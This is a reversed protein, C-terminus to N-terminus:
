LQLHQTLQLFLFLLLLVLGLLLFVPCTRAFPCHRDPSSRSSRHVPCTRAFLFNPCHNKFRRLTHPGCCLFHCSLCMGLLYIFTVAVPCEWKGENVNISSVYRDCGLSCKGGDMGGGGGESGWCSDESKFQLVSHDWTLAGYCMPACCVELLWTDNCRRLSTSLRAQCLAHGVPTIPHRLTKILLGLTSSM